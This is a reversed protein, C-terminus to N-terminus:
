ESAGVLIRIDFSKVNEDIDEHSEIGIRQLSARVFDALAAKESRVYLHIGVPDPIPLGDAGVDTGHIIQNVGQTNWTRSKAFAALLNGADRNTAGDANRVDISVTGQRASLLAALQEIRQEPLRLQPGCNVSASNGDGGIQNVNCNGSQTVSGAVVNGTGRVDIRVKKEPTPSPSVPVPQPPAPTTQVQTVLSPTATTKELGIFRRVEPSFLSAVAVVIGAVALKDNRSWRPNRNM